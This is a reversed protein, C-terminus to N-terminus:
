VWFRILADKVHVDGYEIIYTAFAVSSFRINPVLGGFLYIFLCRKLPFFRFRFSLSDIPCGPNSMLIKLPTITSLSILISLSIQQNRVPALTLFGCM